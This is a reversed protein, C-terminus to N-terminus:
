MVRPEPIPVIFRGGRHCYEQQCSLVEDAYNWALLLVYDPMETLLHEPAHIPIRIDALYRGQKHPNADVAFYVLTRDIGAYHLLTTAMGGGAGYLALRSGGKKLATMMEKLRQSSRRARDAFGRYYALGTVGKGKEFERLRLVSEKPRRRREVFVRLSGGFTPVLEIDNVSLDHAGFLKELSALTFHNLNSHYIMDYECREILDVAYHTEIVAVGDDKLLLSMGEVVDGPDPVLNLLHNATIVDARTGEQRLRSALGSSFFECVTPIGSARATSAPGEAPDIGLVKVGAQAFVKLMYGDNSGLEVVLNDPGLGRQGILQRASQGYHQVLTDWLSSFYPYDAGYLLESPVVDILQILACQQCYCLRMPYTVTPWALQDITLLFDAVPVDGYDVVQHLGCSGCARCRSSDAAM